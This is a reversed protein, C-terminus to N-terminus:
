HIAQWGRHLCIDITQDSLVYPNRPQNPLARGSIVCSRNGLNWPLCKKVISNEIRVDHKGRFSLPTNPEGRM